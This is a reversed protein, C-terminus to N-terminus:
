RAKELHRIERDIELRVTSTALRVEVLVSISGCLWPLRNGSFVDVAVAVVAASQNM